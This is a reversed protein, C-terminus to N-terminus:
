EAGDTSAHRDRVSAADYLLKEHCAQNVWASFSEIEFREQGSARRSRAIEIEHRLDQPFYVTVQVKPGGVEEIPVINYAGVTKRSELIWRLEDDKTVRKEDTSRELTVWAFAASGYMGWDRQLSANHHSNNNLRTVHLKRRRDKNTTFGVYRRGTLVNEIAYILPEHKPM